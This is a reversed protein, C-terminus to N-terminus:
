QEDRPKEKTITVDMFLRFFLGVACAICLLTFFGEM